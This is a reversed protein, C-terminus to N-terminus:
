AIKPLHLPIEQRTTILVKQDPIWATLPGQYDVGMHILARSHSFYAVDRHWHGSVVCKGEPMAAEFRQDALERLCLQRPGLGAFLLKPSNKMMLLEVRQEVWPRVRIGKILHGELGPVHRVPELGAHVAIYCGAEWFLPLTQLFHVHAAPMHATLFQPVQHPDTPLDAIEMGYSKLTQECAYKERWRAVWRPLHEGPTLVARMVLDHNGSICVHGRESMRIMLELLAKVDPGRDIFDGLFVLQRNRLLDKRHLIELLEMVKQYHGHTDPIFIYKHAEPPRYSAASSIPAPNHKEM